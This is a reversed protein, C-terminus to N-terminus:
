SSFSYVNSITCLSALEKNKIQCGELMMCSHRKEHCKMGQLSCITCAYHNRVFLSKRYDNVGILIFLDISLFEGLHFTHLCQLTVVMRGCDNSLDNLCISCEFTTSASSTSAM